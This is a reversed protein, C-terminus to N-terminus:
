GRAVQATPYLPIDLYRRLRNPAQLIMSPFILDLWFNTEIIILVEEDNSRDV